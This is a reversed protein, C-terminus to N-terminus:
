ALGSSRARPIRTCPMTACELRCRGTLSFASGCLVRLARLILGLSLRKIEDKLRTVNFDILLGTKVGSFSLRTLLPGEHDERRRTATSQPTGTSASAVRDLSDRSGSPHKWAIAVILTTKESQFSHSFRNSFRRLILSHYARILAVPAQGRGRDPM